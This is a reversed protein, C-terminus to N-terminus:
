ASFAFYFDLFFLTTTIPTPPHCSITHPLLFIDGIVRLIDSTQKNTQRHTLPHPHPRAHTPHMNSYATHQLCTHRCLLTHPSHFARRHKYSFLVLHPSPSPYLRSKQPPPAQPVYVCFERSAIFFFPPMFRHSFL